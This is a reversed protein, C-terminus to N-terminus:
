VVFKLLDSAHVFFIGRGEGFFKSQGFFRQLFDDAGRHQGGLHRGVGLERPIPDRGCELVFWHDNIVGLVGAMQPCSGFPMWEKDLMQSVRLSNFDCSGVSGAKDCREPVSHLSLGLM